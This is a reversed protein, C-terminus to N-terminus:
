PSRPSPLSRPSRTSPRRRLRRGPGRDGATRRQDGAAHRYAVRRWAPDGGDDPRVRLRLRVPGAGARAGSRGRRAGARAGRRCTRPNSRVGGAPPVGGGGSHRAPCPHRAPRGRRPALRRAPRQRPQLNGRPRGSRVAGAQDGAADHAHAVFVRDFGAWRGEVQGLIFSVLDGRGVLGDTVLGELGWSFGFAGSPFQGDGFQCAMLLTELDSM